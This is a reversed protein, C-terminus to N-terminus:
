QYLLFKNPECLFPPTALIRLTFYLCNSSNVNSHVNLRPTSEVTVNHTICICVQDDNSKTMVQVSAMLNAQKNNVSVAGRRKREAM